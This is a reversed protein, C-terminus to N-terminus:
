ARFMLAKRAGELTPLKGIRQVYRGPGASRSKYFCEGWARSGALALGQLEEAEIGVTIGM